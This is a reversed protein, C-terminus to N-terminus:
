RLIQYIWKGNEGVCEQSLLQKEIELYFLEASSNVLYKGPLGLAEVLPIRYRDVLARDVGGPPSALELIWADRPMERLIAEGLVQAPVTNIVARAGAVEEPALAYDVAVCGDQQARFRQTRNRALVTVKAGLALLKQAMAMGCRGYGTVVYKEGQIRYPSRKILEMIAAEATIQANGVVVQEQLLLDLYQIEEEKCFDIWEKSFAGGVLVPQRGNGKEKNRIIVEQLYMCFEQDAELKRVPTPFIMLEAKELVTDVDEPAVISKRGGFKNVLSKQRQDTVFIVIQKM